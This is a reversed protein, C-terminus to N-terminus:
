MTCGLLLTLLTTKGSGSQGVLGIKQQAEIRLTQNKIVKTTPQYGFTVDRFCITGSNVVLSTATPKDCIRSPSLLLELAQTIKGWLTNLEQMREFMKWLSDTIILNISFIMAFIGASIHHQSHLRILFILCVIQYIQFSLGQFMYFKLMWWRYRQNAKLYKEQVRKLLKIAYDRGLFLRVGLINDFTDTVKGDLDSAAEAAEKALQLSRPTVGLATVVTLFAWFLIAWAISYSAQCLSFFTVCILSFNILYDYLVMAVFAPICAALDNIKSALKGSIHIQFFGYERQLVHKLVSTTIHNQLVPEYRLTCWEQLRFALFEILLVAGWASLLLYLTEPASTRQASEDVINKILQTKFFMNGSYLLLVGVLSILHIKCATLMKLVFRMSSIGHAQCAKYFM